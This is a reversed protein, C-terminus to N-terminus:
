HEVWAISSHIIHLTQNINKEIRGDPLIQYEVKSTELKGISKEGQKNRYTNSLSTNFIKM